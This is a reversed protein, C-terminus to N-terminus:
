IKQKERATFTVFSIDSFILSPNKRVQQGERRPISKKLTYIATDATSRWQERSVAKKRVYFSGIDLLRLDSEIATLWVHNPRGPPRNWDSPPKRIAAAVARHHDVDPASRAICHPWIIELM